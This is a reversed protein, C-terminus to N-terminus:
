QLPLSSITKYKKDKSIEIKILPEKSNNNYDIFSMLFYERLKYLQIIDPSLFISKISFVLCNFFSPHDSRSILSFSWWVTYFTIALGASASIASIVMKTDVINKKVETSVPKRIM